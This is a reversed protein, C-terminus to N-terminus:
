EAPIDDEKPNEPANEPNQNNNSTKNSLINGSVNQVNGSMEVGALLNIPLEVNPTLIDKLNFVVKREISVKREGEWYIRYGKSESNYGVLQGKRACLDLKGVKLDKVYAAIGFEQIGGLNPKRRTVMEYPTKGNLAHTPTRNQIWVGHNMAEGWLFKLLGSSILLAQTAEAQTAEAQTHM